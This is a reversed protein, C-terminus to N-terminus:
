CDRCQDVQYENDCGDEIEGRVIKKFYAFSNCKKQIQDPDLYEAIRPARSKQYKRPTRGLRRAESRFIQEIQQIPACDPPDECGRSQADRAGRRGCAYNKLGEEDGLLWAEQCPDIIVLAVQPGRGRLEECLEKFTTCIQRILSRRELSRGGEKDVIFIVWDEVGCVHKKMKELDILEGLKAVRHEPGVCTLKKALVPAIAYTDETVIRM